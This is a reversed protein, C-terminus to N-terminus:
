GASQIDKLLRYYLEKQADDSMSSIIEKIRASTEGSNSYVLVNVYIMLFIGTVIICETRDIVGGRHNFAGLHQARLARKLGAIFFGAFPAIFAIFLTIIFLHIQVQSATFELSGIPGGINLHRPNSEFLPGDETHSAGADRLNFTIHSPTQKLWDLKVLYISTVYFYVFCAISGAAFGEFSAEPKLM